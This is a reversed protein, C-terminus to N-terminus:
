GRVRGVPPEMHYRMAIYERVASDTAAAHAGVRVRAWICWVLGLM